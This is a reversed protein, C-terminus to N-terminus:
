RDAVYRVQAEETVQAPQESRSGRYILLREPERYSLYRMDTFLAVFEVAVYLRGDQTFCVPWETKTTKGEMTYQRQEPSVEVTEEPLTYMLVGEDSVYFRDNLKAKVFDVTLYFQDFRSDAYESALSDDLFVAAGRDTRYMEDYDAWEKGYSLQSILLWAVISILLAATVTVGVLIYKRSNEM